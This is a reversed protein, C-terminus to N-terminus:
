KGGGGGLQKLLFDRVRPHQVNPAGPYVVECAVGLRQAQEQLKVGFNVTHTADKQPKGIAPTDEFLLYIPPDDASLQAHPSYKAIWPLLRERQAIFATFDQVKRGKSDRFIGFAHSGYDSNPTWERMQQPDLTTQANTVAVCRLRTSERAIPDSSQPDALDPHFALWLATCGGASGGTAAIRTKDLNWEGAKSRVFQLARAADDMAAKVPPEVGEAMAEPILRYGVSAVSIGSKLMAKQLSDPELRPAGEMWAGAHFTLVLPTPTASEAKWFHLIQKPHKGFPVSAFTPPQSPEKKKESRPRDRNRKWYTRIAWGAAIALILVVVVILPKRKM